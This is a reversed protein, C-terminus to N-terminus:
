KGDHPRGIAITIIKAIGWALVAYVLMAILTGPELIFSAYPAVFFSTENYIFSVFGSTPDAASMKFVLRFLLLIELVGGISYVFIRVGNRAPKKVIVKVPEAAKKVEATKQLEEVM